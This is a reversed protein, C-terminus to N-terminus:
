NPVVEFIFSLKLMECGLCLNQNLDGILNNINETFGISKDFHDNTQLSEFEDSYGVNTYDYTAKPIIAEHIM